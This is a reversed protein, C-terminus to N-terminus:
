LADPRDHNGEAQPAGGGSASARRSPAESSGCASESRLARVFTWGAAAGLPLAAAARVSNSLSSLGLWEVPVTVATPVAALVLLWRAHRPARGTGIWAVFAAFAGSAYLGACRACVPFQRGNVLFSREPRQHCITSALGYVIRPWARGPELTATILAAIWVFAAVTLTVALLQASRPRRM